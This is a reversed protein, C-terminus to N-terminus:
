YIVFALTPLAVLARLAWFAADQGLNDARAHGLPFRRQDKHFPSERPPVTLSRLCQLKPLDGKDFLVAIACGHSLALLFAQLVSNAKGLLIWGRLLIKTETPMLLKGFALMTEWIGHERAELPRVCYAVKCVLEIDHNANYTHPNGLLLLSQTQPIDELNKDLRICDLLSLRAVRAGIEKDDEAIPTPRTM